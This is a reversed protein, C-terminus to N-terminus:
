HCINTLSLALYNWVSGFPQWGVYSFTLDCSHNGTRDSGELFMVSITQAWGGTNNHQWDTKQKQWLFMESATYKRFSVSNILFFFVAALLAPFSLIKFTDNNKITLNIQVNIM